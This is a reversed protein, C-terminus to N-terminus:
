AAALTAALTILRRPMLASIAGSVFQGRLDQAQHDGGLQGLAWALDPAMPATSFPLGCESVALRAAELREGSVLGTIPGDGRGTRILHQELWAPEWVVLTFTSAGTSGQLGQSWLQSLYPAVESPPLGLPAQLTLQPAM